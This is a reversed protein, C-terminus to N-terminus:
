SHPLEYAIQQQLLETYCCEALEAVHVHPLGIHPSPAPPNHAAVASLPSVANYQDVTRGTEAAAVATIRLTAAWFTLGTMLGCNWSRGSRIAGRMTRTLRATARPFTPQWKVSIRWRCHHSACCSLCGKGNSKRWCAAVMICICSADQM